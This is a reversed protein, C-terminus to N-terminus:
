YDMSGMAIAETTCGEATKEDTSAGVTTCSTGDTTAGTGKAGKPSVSAKTVWFSFVDNGIINPGKSGNIDVVIDGCTAGVFPAVDINGPTTTCNGNSSFAIMTGDALIGRAYDTGLLAEASANVVGGSVTKLEDTYWCGAATGCNKILNLYGSVGTLVDAHSGSYLAAISGNEAQYLKIANTLTAFNKKLATVNSTDNSSSLLTPISLAAVVGIVTLTILVEALTFGLKRKM